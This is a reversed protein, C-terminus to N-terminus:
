TGVEAAPRCRMASWVEDISVLSVAEFGLPRVVAALVDRHLDTDLQRAKPYSLWFLAGPKLARGLRPVAKELDAARSYFGHVFDFAGTLKAAFDVDPAARMLAVQGAPAGALYVRMGPKYHLKKLIPSPASAM